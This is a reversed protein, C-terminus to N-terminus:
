NASVAGIPRPLKAARNMWGDYIDKYKEPHLNKLTTYFAKLESVLRPAMINYYNSDMVPRGASNMARQLLVGAERVGANIAIDLVKAGVAWDPISDLQLPNWYMQKYINQAYAYASDADMKYFGAAVAEPHAHSNIGFRAVPRALVIEKGYTLSSVDKDIGTVVPENTVKGTKQADESGMVYNFAQEFNTM